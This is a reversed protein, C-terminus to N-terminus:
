GWINQWWNFITYYCFWIMKTNYSEVDDLWIVMGGLIVTHDRIDLDASNENCVPSDLIFANKLRM